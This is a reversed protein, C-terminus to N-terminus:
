YEWKAFDYFDYFKNQLGNCYHKHLNISKPNPDM